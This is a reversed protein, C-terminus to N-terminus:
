KKTEAKPKAKPKSNGKREVFPKGAKVVNRTIRQPPAVSVPEPSDFTVLYYEGPDLDRGGKLASAKDAFGPEVLTLVNAGALGKEMTAFHVREM